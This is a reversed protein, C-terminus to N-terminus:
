CKERNGKARGERLSRRGSDEAGRLQQLRTTNATTTETLANAFVLLQKFDAIPPRTKRRCTKPRHSSRRRRPSKRRARRRHRGLQDQLHPQHRPRLARWDHFPRRHPPRLRSPRRRRHNRWHHYRAEPEQPQLQVRRRRLFNGKLDPRLGAQRRIAECRPCTLCTSRLITLVGGEHCIVVGSFPLAIDNRTAQWAPQNPIPERCLYPSSAFQIAPSNPTAYPAISFSPPL